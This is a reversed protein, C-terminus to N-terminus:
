TFYMDWEVLVKKKEAATDAAGGKDAAGEAVEPSADEKTKLYKGVELM